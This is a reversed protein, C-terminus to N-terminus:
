TGSVWRTLAHSVTNHSKQQISPEWEFGLSDLAQIRLLTIASTEGKRHLRNQRKQTTVWEGLKANESYKRPLNCHGHVKRYDALESLRDEWVTGRATGHTPQVM